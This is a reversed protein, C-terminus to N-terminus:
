FHIKKPAVKFMEPEDLFIFFRKQLVNQNIHEWRKDWERRGAAAPLTWASPLEPTASANCPNLVSWHHAAWRRPESPLCLKMYDVKWPAQLAVLHELINRNEEWGWLIQSRQQQVLLKSCLKNSMSSNLLQQFDGPRWHCSSSHWQAEVVKGIVLIGHFPYPSDCYYVAVTIIGKNQNLNIIHVLIFDRNNFIQFSIVLM